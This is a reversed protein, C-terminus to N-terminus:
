LGKQVQKKTKEDMRAYIRAAMRQAEGAVAEQLQALTVPTAREWGEPVATEASEPKLTVEATGSFLTGGDTKITLSAKDTWVEPTAGDPAACHITEKLEIADQGLNLYNRGPTRDRFSLKFTGTIKEDLVGNKRTWTNKDTVSVVAELPNGERRGQLTVRATRTESGGGASKGTRKWQVSGNLAYRNEEDRVLEAQFADKPNVGAGPAYLGSFSWSVGDKKLSCFIKLTSAGDETNQTEVEADEEPIFGFFSEGSRWGRFAEALSEASLRTFRDGPIRSIVPLFSEPIEQGAFVDPAQMWEGGLYLKLAGSGTRVVAEAVPDEGWLLSLASQCVDQSNQIGLRFTLGSFIASIVKTDPIFLADKVSLTWEAEAPEGASIAGLLRQTGPSFCDADPNEEALGPSLLLLLLFLIWGYRVRRM